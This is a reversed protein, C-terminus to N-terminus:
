IQLNKKKKENKIRGIEKWTNQCEGECKKFNTFIKQNNVFSSKFTYKITIKSFTKLM